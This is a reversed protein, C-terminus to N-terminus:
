RKARCKQELGSGAADKAETVGSKITELVVAMNSTM